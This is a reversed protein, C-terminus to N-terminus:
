QKINIYEVSGPNITKPLVGNYNLNLYPEVKM